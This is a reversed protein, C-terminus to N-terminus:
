LQRRRPGLVPTRIVPDTIFERQCCPLPDSVAPGIHKKRERRPEPELISLTNDGHKSVRSLKYWEAKKYQSRVGSIRYLSDVDSVLVRNPGVRIVPGYKASLEEYDELFGGRFYAGTLWLSTWGAMAPGPIHRLRRWRIIRHVVNAVIFFGVLSSILIPSPLAVVINWLQHLSEM